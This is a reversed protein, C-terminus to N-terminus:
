KGSNVLESARKEFVPAYVGASFTSTVGNALYIVANYKFEDIWYGYEEVLGALHEDSGFAAIRYHAHLDVFGPLLYEDDQLDVIWYDDSSVERVPVGVSNIRGSDILIGRNDVMTGNHVDFYHGGRILLPKAQAASLLGVWCLIMIFMLQLIKRAMDLRLEM